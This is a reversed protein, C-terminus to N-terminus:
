RGLISRANQILDIDFYVQKAPKDGDAELELVDFRHGDKVVLRQKGVPMNFTVLYEEEIFLVQIPKEFSTGAEPFKLVELIGDLLKKYKEAKKPQDTKEYLMVLMALTDLRMFRERELLGLLVAEGEKTQGRGISQAVERLKETVDISYPHYHTTRSFAERLEKWNAKEPAKMAAALLKEFRQDPMEKDKSDDSAWASVTSAWVVSAVGVLVFRVHSSSM